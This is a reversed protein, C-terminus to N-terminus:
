NQNLGTSEEHKQNKESQQRIFSIVDKHTPVMECLEGYDLDEEVAIVKLLEKNQRIVLDMIYEVMYANISTTTM